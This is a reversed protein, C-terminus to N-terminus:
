LHMLFECSFSSVSKKVRGILAQSAVVLRRRTVRPDLISHVLGLSDAFFEDRAASPIEVILSVYLM